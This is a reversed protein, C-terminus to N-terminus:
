GNIANLIKKNADNLMFKNRHGGAKRFGKAAETQAVKVMKSCIASGFFSNCERVAQGVHNKVVKAAQDMQNAAAAQGEKVSPAVNTKVISFVDELSLSRFKGMQKDGAKVVTGYITEALSKVHDNPIKKIQEHMAAKGQDRVQGVTMDKYEAAAAKQDKINGVVEGM